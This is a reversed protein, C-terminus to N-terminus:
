HESRLMVLGSLLLESDGAGPTTTEGADDIVPSSAAAIISVAGEPSKTFDAPPIRVPLSCKIQFSEELDM